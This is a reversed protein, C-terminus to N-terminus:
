KRQLVYSLSTTNLVVVYDSSIPMQVIHFENGNRNIEDKNHYEQVFMKILLSM